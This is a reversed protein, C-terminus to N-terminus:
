GLTEMSMLSLCQNQSSSCCTDALPSGLGSGPEAGDELRQTGHLPSRAGSLALNVGM